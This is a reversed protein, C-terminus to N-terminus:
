ERGKCGGKVSMDKDVCIEEVIKVADKVLGVCVKHHLDDEVAKAAGKATAINCGLLKRCVISGHQKKFRKKFENVMKYVQAKSQQLDAEPSFIKLGLAMVAGTVAGCIDGGRAIGGGFGCSVKSATKGDLGMEPAFVCLVAQSCNFGKSFNEVAKEARVSMIVGSKWGKLM